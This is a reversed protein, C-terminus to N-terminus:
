FISFMFILLLGTKRVKTFKDSEFIDNLQKCIQQHGSNPKGFLFRTHGLTHGKTEIFVALNLLPCLRKDMSGLIVQEPAECEETINKSWRMKCLLTFNNQTNGSINEFKSKMIDNIRAILHWQM